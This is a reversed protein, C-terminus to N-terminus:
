PLTWRISSTPTTSPPPSAASLVNMCRSSSGFENSRSLARSKPLMEFARVSYTAIAAGMATTTHASSHSRERRRFVTASPASAAVLRPRCWRRSSMTVSSSTETSIAM